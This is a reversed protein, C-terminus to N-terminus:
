TIIPSPVYIAIQVPAIIWGNKSINDVVERKKGDDYLLWSDVGVRCYSV